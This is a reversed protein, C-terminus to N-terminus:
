YKAYFIIGFDATADTTDMKIVTGANVTRSAPNLECNVTAIGALPLTPAVGNYSVWVSTGPEFSFIVVYKDFVEPVTFTQPVGTSITGNRFDTPPMPAYAIAGTIDRELNFNVTM